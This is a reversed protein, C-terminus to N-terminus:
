KGEATQMRAELFRDLDRKRIHRTRGLKASPIEGSCLLRYFRTRGIGSYEVAEAPSLWGREIQQGHTDSLVESNREINEPADSYGKNDKSVLLAKKSTKL